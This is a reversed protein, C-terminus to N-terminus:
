LLKVKIVFNLLLYLSKEISGLGVQACVWKLLYCPAPESSQVTLIHDTTNSVSSSDKLPAIGNQMGVLLSSHCCLSHSTTQSWMKM